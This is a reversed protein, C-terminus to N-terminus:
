WGYAFLGWHFTWWLVYFLIKGPALHSKLSAM